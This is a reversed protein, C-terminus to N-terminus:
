KPPPTALLQTAPVPCPAPLSKLTKNVDDTSPATIAGGTKKNLLDGLHGLAKHLTKSNEPHINKTLGPQQTCPQVVAPPQNPQPTTTQQGHAFIRYSALLFLLAVSTNM